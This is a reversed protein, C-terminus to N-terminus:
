HSAEPNIDIAHQVNRLPLLENPLEESILDYYDNLLPQIEQPISPKSDEKSEIVQKTVLAYMVDQEKSEAEFKHM